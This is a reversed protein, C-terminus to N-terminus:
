SSSGCKLLSADALLFTVFTVFTVCVKGPTWFIFCVPRFTCVDLKWLVYFYVSLLSSLSLSLPVYLSLSLSMSLSLSFSVYLPLSFSFVVESTRGFSPGIKCFIRNVINVCVCVCVCVCVVCV